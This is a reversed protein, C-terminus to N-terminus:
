LTPNPEFYVKNKVRTSPNKTKLEFVYGRLLLYQKEYDGIVIKHARIKAKFVKM